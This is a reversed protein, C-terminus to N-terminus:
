TGSRLRQAVAGATAGHDGRAIHVALSLGSNRWCISCDAQVGTDTDHHNRCTIQQAEIWAAIEARQAAAYAETTIVPQGTKM